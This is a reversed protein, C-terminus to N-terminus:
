LYFDSNSLQQDLWRLLEKGSQLRVDGFDPKCRLTLVDRRILRNKLQLQETATFHYRQVLQAYLEPEPATILEALRSLEALLVKVTFVQAAILSSVQKPQITEAPALKNDSIVKLCQTLEGSTFRLATEYFASAEMDCLAPQDYDTQPRSATQIDATPCPPTCVLPPYYNRKSDFDSIKDILFLSGVPHDKHGAIGVNLLVPNEAPSFLAQTYAVGAAMASKGVGTVTLCLDHDSYVAFPQVRTAKKLGFHEVLPKAECPLATYIFIRCANQHKMM